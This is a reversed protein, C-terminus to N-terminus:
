NEALFTLCNIFLYLLYQKDLATGILKAMSISSITIRQDLVEQVRNRAQFFVMAQRIFPSPNKCNKSQLIVRLLEAYCFTLHEQHYVM